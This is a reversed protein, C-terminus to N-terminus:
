MATYLTTHQQFLGNTLWKYNDNIKSSM